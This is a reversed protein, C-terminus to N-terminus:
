TSRSLAIVNSRPLPIRRLESLWREWAALATRRDDMYLAKNYIGAVGRKASGSVHNVIAEVVHPAIRLEENMVTVMTRRLDHLTWPSLPSDTNALLRDIRAKAKGFGSVPSKGTTSFVFEGDKSVSEILTIADPSLPVVHPHHNKTREGPLQWFPKATDLDHLEDWRMGTVEGRRQGTFLMLKFLPGFPYGEADFALWVARLEDSSLVRDRSRTPQPSAIRAVPSVEIVERDVCWSFFKSLYALMRGAAGKSGRGVMQDVVNLLDRKSIESVPRDAFHLTDQGLLCRRYERVTSARLNPEAYTEMFEEALRAFTNAHKLEEAALAERKRTRPDVGAQAELKIQRARERAEALAMAPFRGLTSRVLKGKARVMVFWAKSGNYSTRVGFGPLMTDFWDVQGKEPLRLKQVGAATLHLKPM